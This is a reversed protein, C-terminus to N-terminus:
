QLRRFQCGAVAGSCLLYGPLMCLIESLSRQHVLLLQTVQSRLFNCSRPVPHQGPNDSFCCGPLVGGM